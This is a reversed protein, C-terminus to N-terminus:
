RAELLDAAVGDLLDSQSVILEDIHLQRMTEVVVCAGGVILDVRDAELGPNFARDAASETALTRFVDEAAPRDLVFGHLRDRDYTPLGIEVSAMTSITGGVGVVAGSSLADALGPVERRVDDVHLEVISLAASLEDAAPPDAVLYADTLQSAGVDASWGREFGDRISGLSFETSGGGVDVVLVMSRDDVVARDLGGVAGRFALEAERAGSLVQLDVGLSSRVLDSLVSANTANRAVATAVVRISGAGARDITQRYGDLCSRLREIALDNIRKTSRLGEGTHTVIAERTEVGTGGVHAAEDIVCLRTSITGIDVVAVPDSM